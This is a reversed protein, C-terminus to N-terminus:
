SHDPAPEAPWLGRLTAVVIPILSGFRGQGAPLGPENALHLAAMGHTLAIFFHFFQEDTMGTPNGLRALVRMMQARGQDLVGFSLALSGESPVFGPVPREFCLQYLEPNTVAFTFHTEVAAQQAAWPDDIADIAQMLAGYQEYGLRFLADYIAHKGGPFYEYLSPPRVGVQRALDNMNLAAAGEARMQARAADLIAAVTAQRARQRRTAPQAPEKM